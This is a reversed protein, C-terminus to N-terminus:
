VYGETPQFSGTPRWSREVDGLKSCACMWAFEIGFAAYIANESNREWISFGCEQLKIQKWLLSANFQPQEEKSMRYIHAFNHIIRTLQSGDRHNPGFVLVNWTSEYRITPLTRWWTHGFIPPLVHNDQESITPSSSCCYCSFTWHFQAKLGFSRGSLLRCCQHM